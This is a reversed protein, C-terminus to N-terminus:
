PSPAPREFDSLLLRDGLGPLIALRAASNQTASGDACPRPEIEGCQADTSTFSKVGCSFQPSMIDPCQLSNDLGYLYGVSRAAEECLIDMNDGIEQAFVFAIANDLPQGTLPAVSFIGPIVGVNQSTGALLVERRAVPGPDNSTVTVDYKAFAKRLCATTQAFTADGFPFAPLYATASPISSVHNIADDQGPAITCGDTCRNLYVIDTAASATTFCAWAMAVLIRCVPSLPHQTSGVSGPAHWLQRWRDHQRLQCSILAIANM